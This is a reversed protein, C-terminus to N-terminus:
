KAEEYEAVLDVKALEEYHSKQYHRLGEEFNTCDHEAKSPDGSTQKRVSLAKAAKYIAQRDIKVTAKHKTPM